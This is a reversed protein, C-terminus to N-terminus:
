KDFKLNELFDEIIDCIEEPKEYLIMHGADPIVALKSGKIWQHLIKADEPSTIIDDEGVIILTPAKIKEASAKADYGVLSILYRFSQPPLSEIYEMNDVMFRYFVKDPTAPSFFMKRYLRRMLSNNSFLLPKWFIPPFYEIIWDMLQKELHTVPSILIMAKVKRRVAYELSLLTGFSHGILIMENIGLEERIADIDGIYDSISVFDPKDSKGYGRLDMAIVRYNKKFYPLIYKWNSIQGPSGHLFMLATGEGAEHFHIKVDSRFIFPMSPGGM